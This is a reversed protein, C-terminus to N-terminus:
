ELNITVNFSGEYAGPAQGAAVKLTAGIQLTWSLGVGGSSSYTRFDDLAMTQSGNSLVVLGNAPLSVSFRRGGPNDLRVQAVAGPDAALLWVGGAGQRQGTSADVKVTGAGLAPAVFSGFRLPALVSASQAQAAGAGFAALLAFAAGCFHPWTVGTLETSPM